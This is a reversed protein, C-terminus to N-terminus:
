DLFPPAPRDDPYSKNRLTRSRDRLDGVLRGYGRYRWATADKADPTMPFSGSRALARLRTLLTEVEDRHAAPRFAIRTGMEKTTPFFYGSREVPENRLAALAYAYLAWQLHAGEQLPDDEDYASASGTKYDWIALAGEPGRDVRDIRGRLALRHGGISVTVDGEDQPQRRRPGFGFGLEFADPRWERTHEAEARLFVRADRRLQRRAGEEEVQNQPAVQAVERDIQDSLIELLAEEDARTPGTGDLDRMFREFTAHLVSGRRLPTLWPEDTLAPEDLPEV